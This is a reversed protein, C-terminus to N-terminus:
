ETTMECWMEDKRLSTVLILSEKTEKVWIVIFVLLKASKDFLLVSIILKIVNNFLVFEPSCIVDHSM